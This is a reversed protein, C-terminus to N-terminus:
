WGRGLLWPDGGFISIVIFDHLKGVSFFHPLKHGAVLEHLALDLFQLLYQQYYASRSVGQRWVFVLGLGVWRWVSVWGGRTKSVPHQPSSSPDAPDREREREWEPELEREREGEAGAGAARLARRWM